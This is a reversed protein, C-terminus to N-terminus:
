CPTSTADKPASTAHKSHTNTPTTRDRGLVRASASPQVVIIGRCYHRNDNSDLSRFEKASTSSAAVRERLCGLPDDSASSGCAPSQPPQPHAQDYRRSNRDCHQRGTVVATRNAIYLIRAHYRPSCNASQAWWRPLCRVNALADPGGRGRAADASNDGGGTTHRGTSACRPVVM